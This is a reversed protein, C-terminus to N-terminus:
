FPNFCTVPYCVLPKALGASFSSGEEMHVRDGGKIKWEFCQILAAITGQIVTLALSSGPCGRRGFGFPIYRFDDGDMKIMRQQGGGNIGDFGDLFREPIFEEPHVWAEPDRMIAYVNILTRTQGKLDYGNIKCDEASQRLAFPATPHLRLVEKVVAQLYHLNPLDSESVLRNTGVVEDIEAKLKKLVRQNNMIEAMAWQLAASSTHTGALFIDLFFAKIDNRTLRVQANPDKYVQLLIDMMDGTPGQCDNTNKLEHEELIRELIQDFKHVIKVLKKGYGFLDLKGLPGLVEGMSLKAGVHLFERVLGQIEEAHNGKDLCTTSMAMRCLINNTMATLDLSLDTARGETSCVILSKLLNKIEQERIHMFRGLQSSSLLQTVCLKKMFRWYPGYPATIFYSGKYQFYDSSGFQPRYCFNLDHTKMVEKAVQANSVVVCTSAGLHLQILPGYQRALTQFSKPIVSGLLHLHGIIPLAPPSPPAGVKPSCNRTRSRLSKVLFTLVLLALFSVFISCWVSDGAADM